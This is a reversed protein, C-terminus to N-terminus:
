AVRRENKEGDEVDDNAEEAKEQVEMAFAQDKQLRDWIFGEVDAMDLEVGDQNYFKRTLRIEEITIEPSMIGNEPEAPQVYCGVELPLENILIRLNIM